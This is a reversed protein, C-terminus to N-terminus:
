DQGHLGPVPPRPFSKFVGSLYECKNTLNSHGPLTTREAFAKLCGRQTGADWALAGRDLFLESSAMVCPVTRLYDTVQAVRERDEFGCFRVGTM